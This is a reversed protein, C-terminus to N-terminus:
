TEFYLLRPLEEGRHWVLVGDGQTEAIRLSLVVGGERADRMAEDKSVHRRAGYVDNIHTTHVLDTLAFPETRTLM